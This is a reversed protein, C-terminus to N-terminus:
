NARFLYITMGTTKLAIIYVVFTELNRDFAVKAFEKKDILKVQYTIPLTEVASYTRLTPGVISREIFNIDANNLSLFLLGLAVEICTDALM